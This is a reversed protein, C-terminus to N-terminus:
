GSFADPYIVIEVRRNKAKGAPTANSARPHNAGMAAISLQASPFQNRSVLQQFVGQAQSGSLLHAAGPNALLANDTHGEILIRQRPYSQLIAASVTDVLQTGEATLQLGGAGFLRDAPLEIRVVDAEQYVEIGPIQVKQLNQTVSSNASLIAGGRAKASALVAEARKEAEDKLNQLEKMQAGSDGLQKQLLSIQNQLQQRLQDSQAVQQTLDRNNADLQSIQTSLDKMQTSLAQNTEQWANNGQAFASNFSGALTNPPTAGPAAPNGAAVFPNQQCGAALGIVTLLILLPSCWSRM